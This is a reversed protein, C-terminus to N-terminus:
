KTKFKLSVSNVCYRKKGPGPGDDFVHGLHSGCAACMIETRVMGLSTDVSTIISKNNIADTFSPWGCDSTFKDDSKFLPAGCAACYYIGDKSFINYEGTFPRETAKQRLVKYQEPTLIQKWESDTKQVKLNEKIATKNLETSNRCSILWILSISIAIVSKFTKMTAIRVMAYLSIRRNEM